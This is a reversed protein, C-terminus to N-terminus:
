PESLNSANRANVDTQLKIISKLGSWSAEQLMITRASHTTLLFLINPWDHGLLFLTWKSNVRLLQVIGTVINCLVDLMETNLYALKFLNDYQILEIHISGLWAINCHSSCHDPFRYKRRVFVNEFKSLLSKGKSLFFLSISIVAGKLSRVWFRLMVPWQILWQVVRAERSSRHRNLGIMKISASIFRMCM